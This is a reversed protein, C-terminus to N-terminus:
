TAPTPGHRRWRPWSTRRRPSRHAALVPHRAAPRRVLGRGLRGRQRGGLRARRRHGPPPAGPLHRVRHDRHVLRPPPRRCLPGGPPVRRRGAGLAGARRRRRLRGRHPGQGRRGREAARGRAREPRRDRRQGGRRGGGRGQSSGRATAAHLQPGEMSADLVQVMALQESGFPLVRASVPEVHRALLIGLEDCVAEFREDAQAPSTPPSRWAVRQARTAATAGLRGVSPGARAGGYRMSPLAPAGAVEHM